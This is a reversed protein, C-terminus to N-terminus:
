VICQGIQLVVAPLKEVEIQIGTVYEDIGLLGAFRTRAVASSRKPDEIREHIRSHREIRELVFVDHRRLELPM